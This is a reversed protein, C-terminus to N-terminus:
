LLTCYNYNEEDERLRRYNGVLVIGYILTGAITILASGNIYRPKFELNFKIDKSGKPVVIGLQGGNTKIVQYNNDIKWCDNYSIPLVLINAEDVDRQYSVRWGM